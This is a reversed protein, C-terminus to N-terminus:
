QDRQDQAGVGRLEALFGTVEPFRGVVRLLADTARDQFVSGKEWRAVTKPGVGLLKEFAQQTLGLGERIGRIQSPLLLGEAARIADSARRMTADMQGPAYFSEGCEQCRFFQDLVLATRNGVSVEREEAMAEITRECTPCHEMAGPTRTRKSPPAGPAGSLVRRLVEWWFLAVHKPLDVTELGERLDEPSMLKGIVEARGRTLLRTFTVPNRVDIVADPQADWFLEPFDGYRWTRSSASSSLEM